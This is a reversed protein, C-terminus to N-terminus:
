LMLAEMSEIKKNKHNSENPKNSERVNASLNEKEFLQM